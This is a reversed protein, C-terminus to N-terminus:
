LCEVCEVLLQSFIGDYPHTNVQYLATHAKSILQLLVTVQIPWIFSFPNVTSSLLLFHCKFLAFVNQVSYKQFLVTKCKTKNYVHTLKLCAEKKWVWKSANYSLKSSCFRLRIISGNARTWTPSHEQQTWHLTCTWGCLWTVTCDAFKM